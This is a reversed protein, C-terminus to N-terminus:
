VTREDCEWAAKRDDVVLTNQNTPNADTATRHLVIPRDGISTDLHGANTIQRGVRPSSLLAAEVPDPIPPRIGRLGEGRRPRCVVISGAPFGAPKEKNPGSPQKRHPSYSTISSIRIMLMPPMASRFGTKAALMAASRTPGALAKGLRSLRLWESGCAAVAIPSSIRTAPLPLIRGFSRSSFLRWGTGLRLSSFDPPLEPRISSQSVLRPPLTSHEECADRQHSMNVPQHFYFAYSRRIRSSKPWSTAPRHVAASRLM